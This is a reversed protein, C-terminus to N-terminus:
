VRYRRKYSKVYIIKDNRKYSYANVNIYRIIDKPTEIPKNKENYFNLETWAFDLQKDTPPSFTDFHKGTKRYGKYTMVEKLHSKTKIDISSFDVFLSIRFSRYNSPRKNTQM